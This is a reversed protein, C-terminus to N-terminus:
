GAIEFGLQPPNKLTQYIVCYRETLEVLKARAKDDADIDLDFTLDISTLGIPTERSVGLTGRADWTGRAKVVGSNVTIGMATAVSSLTVGACAVLAELLMDASCAASGDGGAAPHLGAKTEGAWGSISCTIDQGLRAEAEGVVLATEPNDKYRQKIPAQLERLAQADM